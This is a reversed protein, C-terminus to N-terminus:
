NHPEEAMSDNEVALEKSHTVMCPRYAIHVHISLLGYIVFFTHNPLGLKGLGVLYAM